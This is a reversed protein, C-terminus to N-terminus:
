GLKIDDDLKGLVLVAGPEGEGLIVWRGGDRNVVFQRGGVTPVGRLVNDTYGMRGVRRLQKVTVRVDLMSQVDSDSDRSESFGSYGLGRVGIQLGEVGCAAFMAGEEPGCYEWVWRVTENDPVGMDRLAERHWAAMAEAAVWALWGYHEGAEGVRVAEGQIERLWTDHAGTIDGIVRLRNYLNSGDTHIRTVEVDLRQLLENKIAVDVGVVGQVKFGDNAGGPPRVSVSSGEVVLEKVRANNEERSGRLSGASDALNSLLCTAPGLGGLEGEVGFEDAIGLSDLYIEVPKGESFDQHLSRLCDYLSEEQVYRSGLLRDQGREEVMHIFGVWLNDIPDDSGYREYESSQDEFTRRPLARYTDQKAATITVNVVAANTRSDDGTKQMVVKLPIERPDFYGDEDWDYCMFPTLSDLAKVYRDNTLTSGMNGWSPICPSRRQECATYPSQQNVSFCFVIVLFPHSPHSANEGATSTANNTPDM